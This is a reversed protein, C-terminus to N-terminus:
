VRSGSVKANGGYRGHGDSSEAVYEDSSTRNRSGIVEESKVDHQLRSCCCDPSESSLGVSSAEFSSVLRMMSALYSKQALLCHRQSASMM